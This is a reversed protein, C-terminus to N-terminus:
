DNFAKRFLENYEKIGMPRPNSGTSLNAASMESLKEIDEEKIGIQKLTPLKIDASIQKVMEVAEFAAKRDDAQASGMARAVRSYSDVAYDISYEMVYPLLISNCVGHPADYISGLAEAMCHVSAVDSHSFAIGALTSGMLMSARAELNSGNFVAERISGTILEIAYLACADAVPESVTASYAEIAHTLADVGTSATISPPLTITLEPDLLAVKPGIYVSKMTKKFREKSDTIVSSFTVESGTGATTPIAIFPHVPGRVKDRGYYDKMKGGYCIIASAAKATDIPSGGGVAIIGDTHNEVGTKAANEVNYDKPNPDVGDFIVYEFGEDELLQTIKSLLGSKVIGKDTVILPKKVKLERLERTLLSVSGAGYEIGTPLIFSFQKKLNKYM